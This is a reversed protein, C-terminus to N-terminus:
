TQDAMTQDLYELPTDTPNLGPLSELFQGTLQEILAKVQRASVTPRLGSSAIEEDTLDESITWAESSSIIENMQNEAVVVDARRGRDTSKRTYSQEDFCKPNRSAPSPHYFVSLTRLLSKCTREGNVWQEFWGEQKLILGALGEWEGAEKGEYISTQAKDFGGEQVSEDFLITQYITHALLAPHPLLHPIRSRLFALLIPFLLLTFESQLTETM